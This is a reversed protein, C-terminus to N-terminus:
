CLLSTEQGKDYDILSQQPEVQIHEKDREEIGFVGVCVATVRVISSM